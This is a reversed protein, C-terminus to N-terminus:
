ARRSTPAVAARELPASVKVVFTCREHGQSQCHTETALTTGESIRHMAGELFGLALYCTPAQSGPTTELLQAGTFVFRGNERSKLSLEGLGMDAYAEMAAEPTQINLEEGIARGLSRRSGQTYPGAALHLLIRRVVQRTVRHRQAQEQARLAHSADEVLGLVCPEGGVEILQASVKAPFEQGDKRVLQLSIGELSGEALLKAVIEKRADPDPYLRATTQGIVEDRAYGFMELWAANAEIVLGDERRTISLAIPSAVFARSFREESQRLTTAAERLEATKRRVQSRMTITWGALLVASGLAIGSGVKLWTPVGAPAPPTQPRLDFGTWKIFIAQLDDAAITGLAKDMVSLLMPDAQSVAIHFDRSELPTSLPTLDFLRLERVFFATPADAGIFLDAGGDNVMRLGDRVDPVSSFSALPFLEPMSTASASREVVVIRAGEFGERPAYGSRAWAITKVTAYPATFDLFARREPTANLNMILDASGNRVADLTGAFSPQLVLEFRLGTRIGVLTLIDGNIGEPRDGEDVIFFPPLGDNVAVRLTGHDRMWALEEPTFPSPQALSPASGGALLVLALASAPVHRPSPMGFPLDAM